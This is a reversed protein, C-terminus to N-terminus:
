NFFQAKLFSFSVQTTDSNQDLWSDIYWLNSKSNRMLHFQLKGSFYTKLQADQYNLNISYNSTYLASEATNDSITVNTFTLIPITGSQKTKMANFYKREASLSWSDYMASYVSKADSSPIFNYIVGSLNNSDAFCQIYNDVNQDVFANQFNKIVLDYSVPQEFNSRSSNPNEPSRTEFLNCATFIWM